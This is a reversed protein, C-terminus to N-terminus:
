PTKRGQQIEHIDATNREVRVQLEAVRQTIGPIDALQQTLTALRDNMVAQQTAMSSMAKGQDELRADFNHFVWGLLFVLLSFGASLVRREVTGLSPPRNPLSM